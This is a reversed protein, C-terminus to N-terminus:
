VKYNAATLRIGLLRLLHPDDDVILIKGNVTNGTNSDNM